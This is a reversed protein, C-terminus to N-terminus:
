LKQMTKPDFDSELVSAKRGQYLVSIRKGGAKAPAPQAPKKAPPPQTGPGSTAGPAPPGNIPGPTSPGTRGVQRHLEGVRATLRGFEMMSTADKTWDPKSTIAALATEITRLEKEASQERGQQGIAAAGTRADAGIEARKTEGKEHEVFRQQTGEEKATGLLMKVINADSVGRAKLGAVESGLQNKLQQVQLRTDGGAQAVQERSRAAEIGPLHPAIIAADKYSMTDGGQFKPAGPDMRPVMPGGGPQQPPLPASGSAGAQQPSVQPAGQMPQGTRGLSQTFSDPGPRSVGVGGQQYNAPPLEGRQFAAERWPDQPPQQNPVVAAGNVPNAGSVAGAGGGMGTNPMGPGHAPNVGGPAYLAPYGPGTGPGVQSLSDQPRPIGGAPQQGGGQLYRQIEPHQSAERGLQAPDANPDALLRQIYDAYAQPVPMRSQREAQARANMQDIGGFGAIVNNQDNSDRGIM